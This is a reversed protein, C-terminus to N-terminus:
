LQETRNEILYMLKKANPHGQEASLNLYYIAQEMDGLDKYCLGLFYNIWERKVKNSKDVEDSKKLNLIAKEFEGLQYYTIGFGYYPKWYTPLLFRSKEFYGIAESYKEKEYLALGIICYGPAFTSDIEIAKKYDEIARNLDGVYYQLIVGRIYFWLPQLSDLAIANDYLHLATLTDGGQELINEAEIAYSAAIEKNLQQGCSTATFLLILGFFQVIKM